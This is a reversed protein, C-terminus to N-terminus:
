VPRVSISAACISSTPRITVETVSSPKRFNPVDPPMSAFTSSPVRTRMPLTGPTMPMRAVCRFVFSSCFFSGGTDAIYMSM